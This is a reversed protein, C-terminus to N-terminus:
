ADRETPRPSRLGYGYRRLLPACVLTVFYQQWAPMQASWREDKGVIIKSQMRHRSGAVQHQPTITIAEDGPERIVKPQDVLSVIRDLTGEPDAVFDEYRVRISRGTCLRRRLFETAINVISWRVATYLLSKPRLERQLGQDVQRKYGKKLSWAVGRADRVVHVVHLQIGPMRALAFARGPLKSSDVVVERGSRAAIGRFLKTTRVAHDRSRLREVLRGLGIITETREQALRYDDLLTAPECDSWGAVIDSWMPCCYVLAGCACYEGNAWVHRSLTSIEGGGMIAPHEGLAIDLLTTGSRGYGAIYIVKIPRADWRADLAVTASVDAFAPKPSDRGPIRFPSLSQVRRHVGLQVRISRTAM